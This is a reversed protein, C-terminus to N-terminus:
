IIENRKNENLIEKKRKKENMIEKIIEKRENENLIKEKKKM